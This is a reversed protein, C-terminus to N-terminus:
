VMDRGLYPKLDASIHDSGYKPLESVVIKCLYPKRFQFNRYGSIHYFHGTKSAGSELRGFNHCVQRTSELSECVM